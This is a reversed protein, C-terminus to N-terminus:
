ESVTATYTRGVGDIAQDFGGGESSGLVSWDPDCPLGNISANYDDLCAIQLASTTEFVLPDCSVLTLLARGGMFHVLGASAFSWLWDLVYVHEDGDCVWLNDDALVRGSCCLCNVEGYFQDILSTEFTFPVECMAMTGGVQDGLEEKKWHKLGIAEEDDDRCAADNVFDLEMSRSGIGSVSITLNLTAPSGQGEPCGCCGPAECQKCFSALIPKGDEEGVVLAFYRKGIEFNATGPACRQDSYAIIPLGDDDAGVTLGIVKDGAELADCFGDWLAFIPKHDADTGVRLVLRKEGAEPPPSGMEEGFWDALWDGFWDEM